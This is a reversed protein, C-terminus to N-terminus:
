QSDDNSSNLADLRQRNKIDDGTLVIVNWGNAKMTKKGTFGMRAMARGVKRKDLPTRISHGILEIIRTTTLFEGTENEGPVRLYTYILEEEITLEEFQRHHLALEADDAEDLWYRFGTQWLHYAQAYIGEYPYDHTFPSDIGAIRFPLWRRNGSLDTLFRPNNGTACFSAIHKRRVAYREYVPRLNVAPDTVLAKLQEVETPKLSDMDDLDVLALETLALRDDKDAKGRFNKMAFYDALVPPLLHTMFTTKYKGQAGIYALIEHNVARDDCWAAVMAVMWMKFYRNHMEQTCGEVHVMSALEDIYDHGDWEPLGGLYDRLPHYEPYFDSEIVNYLENPHSTLGTTLCLRCYLSNVHKSELEKWNLTLTLTSSSLSQGGSPQNVNVNDDVDILIERKRTVVNYRICVDSDTLFRQIDAVTARNSRRATRTAHEDTKRYCSRVIAPVDDTAAYEAFEEVAWECCDKETVGRRNMEYCMRCIYDNHSHPEYRVGQAEVMRRVSDAVDAARVVKAVKAAKRPRGVPRKGAKHEAAYQAALADIDMAEAEPRFLVEPDYALASLRTPNSCKKDPVIGTLRRYYENVTNFALKYSAAGEQGGRSPPPLTTMASEPSGGKQPSSLSGEYRAVVRVGCGSLTTYALLTHPDAKVTALVEPLQSPAIKDLDVLTLGTYSVIDTDAKGGNFRVAVAFCLVSGKVERAKADHGAALALRYDRTSVQLSSDSRILMAMRELNDPMPSRDTFGKFTDITLM